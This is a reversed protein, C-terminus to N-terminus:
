DKLAALQDTDIHDFQRSIHFVAIGMVFVAVFVDLLVGLEVLLPTNPVTGVGFAYIGNEMVLYGVVQTLAKKRAIILFLGTFSTFLAVPVLLPSVLPSPLPLRSSLWLSALLALTGIALSLNYGVFPEIERRVNAAHLTRSLLWPFAAGKLGSSIIALTVPRLSLAEGHATLTLVGLLVGQFAVFRICAGLRTAGLLSFDTLMLLILATDSWTTM